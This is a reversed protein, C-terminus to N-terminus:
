MQKKQLVDSIISWAKIKSELNMRANASSPSPLTYYEKDADKMIYKFYLREAVKSTFFVSKVQPYKAYLANFDNIQENKIASDLSGERECHALVDWLAIHHKYLFAKKLQYETSYEENFLSFMIQWFHNSKHAYYEQRRLSEEGPMTGLLLIKSNSDVIPPFSSKM